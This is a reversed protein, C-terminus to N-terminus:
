PSMARSSCSSSSCALMAASSGALSGAIRPLDPRQDLGGLHVVVEAQVLARVVLLEVVEDQVDVAPQALDLVGLDAVAQVDEALRRGALRPDVQHERDQAGALHPAALRGAPGARPAPGAGVVRGPGPRRPRPAPARGPRPCPPRRSPARAAGGHRPRTARSGALHVDLPHQPERRGLHHRPQGRGVVLDRAHQVGEVAAEDGGARGARRQAAQDVHQRGAAVEVGDVGLRDRRPQGPLGALRHGVRQDLAVAAVM